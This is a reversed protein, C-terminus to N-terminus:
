LGIVIDAFSITFASSCGPCIVSLEKTQTNSETLTILEECPTDQGPLYCHSITLTRYGKWDRKETIFGFLVDIVARQNREREQLQTGLNTAM